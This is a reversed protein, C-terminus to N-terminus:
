LGRPRLTLLLKTVLCSCILFSLKLMYGPTWSVSNGLPLISLQILAETALEQPPFSGQLSPSPHM